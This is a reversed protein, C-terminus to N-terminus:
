SSLRTNYDTLEDGAESGNAHLLAIDDADVGEVGDPIWYEHKPDNTSTTYESPRSHNLGWGTLASLQPLCWFGPM